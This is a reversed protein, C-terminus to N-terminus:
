PSVDLKSNIFKREDIWVYDILRDDVEDAHHKCFDLPGTPLLARFYAAAGCGRKDCRDVATLVRQTPLEQRIESM